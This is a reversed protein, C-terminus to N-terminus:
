GPSQSGGKGTEMLLEKVRLGIDQHIDSHFQLQHGRGTGLGETELESSVRCQGGTALVSFSKALFYCSM